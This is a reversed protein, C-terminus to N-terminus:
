HKVVRNNKTRLKTSKQTSLPAILLLILSSPSLVRCVSIFRRRGQFYWDCIIIQKSSTQGGRNTIQKHM